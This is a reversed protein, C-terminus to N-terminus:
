LITRGTSFLRFPWAGVITYCDFIYGCPVLCGILNLGTADLLM